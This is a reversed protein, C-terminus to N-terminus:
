KEMAKTELLQGLLVMFFNIRTKYDADKKLLSDLEKLAKAAIEQIREIVVNAEKENM